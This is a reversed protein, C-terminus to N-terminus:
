RLLSIADLDIAHRGHHEAMSTLMDNGRETEAAMVTALVSMMLGWISSHRYDRWATERSLPVGAAQMRDAYDNVLDREVKARVDSELCGGVAYAVDILGNADSATQWDVVALPPASRFLM